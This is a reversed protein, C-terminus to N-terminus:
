RLKSVAFNIRVINKDKCDMYRAISENMDVNGFKMTITEPIYHGDSDKNGFINLMSEKHLKIILYLIDKISDTDFQIFTNASIDLASAIKTLQEPKPNRLGCEYKKITSINIGSLRALTDQSMNKLKRYKKIKEAISETSSDM